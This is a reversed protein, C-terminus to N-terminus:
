CRLFKSRLSDSVLCTSIVRLFSKHLFLNMPLIRQLEKKKQSHHLFTSKDQANRPNINQLERLSIKKYKIHLAIIKVYFPKLFINIIVLFLGFKHRCNMFLNLVKFCTCNKSSCLQLFHFLFFFISLFLIGLECKKLVCAVNLFVANQVFVVFM